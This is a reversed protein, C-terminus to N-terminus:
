KLIKFPIPLIFKARVREGNKVPAEYRLKKAAEVAAREFLPNSASEVSEVELYGDEDIIVNLLVRGEIGRRLLSEPYKIEVGGIRRPIKDLESLEFAAIKDSSMQFDTLNAGFPVDSLSDSLPALASLDLSLPSIASKDVAPLDQNFTEAYPSKANSMRKSADRPAEAASYVKVLKEGEPLSKPAFAAISLPLISFAALSLALSCFASRIEFRGVDFTIQVGM